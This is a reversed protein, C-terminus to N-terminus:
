KGEKQTEITRKGKHGKARAETEEIKAWKLNRMHEIFPGPDPFQQLQFRLLLFYRYHTPYTRKTVVLKDGQIITDVLVLKCTTASNPMSSSVVNFLIVVPAERM